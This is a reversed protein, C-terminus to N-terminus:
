GYTTADRWPYATEDDPVAAVAKTPWTELIIASNRASPNTQFFKGMKQMASSMTPADFTKLNFSFIDLIQPRACVPGDIQFMANASLKNWPLTSVNQFPFPGLNLIPAMAKLGADKPGAYM